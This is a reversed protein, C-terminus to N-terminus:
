ITIDPHSKNFATEYAKLQDMELATYVTLETKQAYVASAAVMAAVAAVLQKWNQM